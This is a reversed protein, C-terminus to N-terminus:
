EPGPGRLVYVRSCELCRFRHFTFGARYDSRLHQAALSKCTPCVAAPPPPPPASASDNAPRAEPRPPKAASRRAM